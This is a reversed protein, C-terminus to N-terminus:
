ALALAFDAMELITKKEEARALYYYNGMARAFIPPMEGEALLNGGWRERMAEHSHLYGKQMKRGIYCCHYKRSYSSRFEDFAIMNAWEQYVDIDNAYNFMDTTFGGPPRINVELGVLKGEKHTRFFELHFFKGRVNFAKLTKMGEEVLDKPIDRLFYYYVHRDEVVIEMIGSSFTHSTYFVPIGQQNTLGDFSYIDGDVWEELFYPIHPHDRFVQEIEEPSSVKYTNAAGVGNDPKAVLPYGTKKAFSLAESLDAVRKGDVVPVGGERYRIKMRSKLKIDDITDLQIGEINFDTRLRAETALWHENLSEIKSVRGYRHIILAVARYLEDYEEMNQVHYYGSLSARVRDELCEWPTDGIGLVNVGLGKLAACFQHFQKPFHPSLFIVNM